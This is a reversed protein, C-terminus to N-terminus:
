RVRGTRNNETLTEMLLTSRTLAPIAQDVIGRQLSQIQEDKQAIVLDKRSNEAVLRNVEAETRLKGTILLLVVVGPIGASALLTYPDFSPVTDAAVWYLSALM